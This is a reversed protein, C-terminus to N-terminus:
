TGQLSKGSSGMPVEVSCVYHSDMVKVMGLCLFTDPDLEYKSYGLLM